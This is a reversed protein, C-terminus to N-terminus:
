IILAITYYGQCFILSSILIFAFLLVFLVVRHTHRVAINMASLTAMLENPTETGPPCRYRLSIIMQVAAIISSGTAANM